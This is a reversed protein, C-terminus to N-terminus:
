QVVSNQHEIYMAHKSTTKDKFEFVLELKKGYTDPVIDAEVIEGVRPTPRGVSAKPPNPATAKREKQQYGTPPDCDYEERELWKDLRFRPAKSDGQAAWSQRWAFAASVIAAFLTADPAMKRFAARAERKNKKYDYARWLQEFEDQATGATAPSLGSVTPATPAACEQGDIETGPDLARTPTSPDENPSEHVSVTKANPTELVSTNPTELVSRANETANPSKQVCVLDWAPVYRSARRGSGKEQHLYGWSVLDTLAGHVEGAFLIKGRPDRERIRQNINTVVHRVSALANGYKSHFWDLIFGYVVSHRRKVRADYPLTAILKFKAELSEPKPLRPPLVTETETM